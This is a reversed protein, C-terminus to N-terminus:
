LRFKPTDPDLEALSNMTMNFVDAYLNANHNVVRLLWAGCDYEQAIERYREYLNKANTKYQKILKAKQDVM